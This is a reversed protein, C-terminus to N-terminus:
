DKALRERACGDTAAGKVTVSAKEIRSRSAEGSTGFEHGHGARQLRTGAAGRHHSPTWPSLTKCAWPDLADSLLLPVSRYTRMWARWREVQLM